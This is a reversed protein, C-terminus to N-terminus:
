RCDGHKIIEWDQVHMEDIQIPIQTWNSVKNITYNLQFAVIFEVKIGLLEPLDSGKLVVPDYKRSSPVGISMNRELAKLKRMREM